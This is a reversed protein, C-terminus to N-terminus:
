VGFKLIRRLLMGFNDENQLGFRTWYKLESDWGKVDCASLMSGM